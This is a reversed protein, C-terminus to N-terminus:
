IAKFGHFETHLLYVPVSLLLKEAAALRCILSALTRVHASHRDMPELPGKTLFDDDTVSKQCSALLIRCIEEDTLPVIIQTEM